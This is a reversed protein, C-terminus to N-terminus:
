LATLVFGPLHRLLKVLIKFEVSPRVPAVVGHWM